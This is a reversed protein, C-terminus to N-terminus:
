EEIHLETYIDLIARSLSPDNLRRKYIPTKLITIVTRVKEELSLEKWEKDEFVNM